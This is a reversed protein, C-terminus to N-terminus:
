AAPGPWGPQWTAEMNPYQKRCAVYEEVMRRITPALTDLYDPTIRSVDLLYFHWTPKRTASHYGMHLTRRPMDRKTNHGRHILNNNYLCAHGAPISIPEGGPMPEERIRAYHKSGEFFANEEVTNPRNHSGPVAWLSNEEYLPLNIQVSNHPWDSSFLEDRIEEEPIQIIDRHWGLSYQVGANSALISANNIIPHPGLLEEVIEIVRPIHYAHLISQTGQQTLMHMYYQRPSKGFSSVPDGFHQYSSEYIEEDEDARQEPDLIEAMLTRFEVVEAESLVPEIVYGEKEFNAKLNSMAIQEEKRRVSYQKAQPECHVPTMQGGHKASHLGAELVAIVNVGDRFDPAIPREHAVAKIFDVTAHVFAHEYGLVHGPPWWREVYPHCSETALITRFGQAHQDDTRSFFELENMRELNFQLSGESGYIEFYNHNKRGTAFRTAEFSGIAGDAFRAHMLSADDVTVKGTQASSSEEVASFATARDRPLPRERIFTETLCSVSDIPGVLYHALDVSHSNLDAHPGAGATEECLQWTLPFEPDVIWDQLYCGRWHFIRGIRGEDILQKALQVAPTRRYNHNLYHRVGNQEAVALMNQAEALTMALPKECFIHKGNEAAAIAVDHHLSQPLAVDIVDVDDREVVRRWDTETDQWGWNDAFDQVAREDRGCAVQLKPKLPLDFFKGAQLWANSHARGMFNYGIIGIRLQKSM